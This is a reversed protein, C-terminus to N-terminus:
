RMSTTFAPPVLSYATTSETAVVAAVSVSRQSSGSPRKASPSVTVTVIEGNSCIRLVTLVHNLRFKSFRHCSWMGEVHPRASDATAM